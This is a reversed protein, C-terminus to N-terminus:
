VHRGIMGMLKMYLAKPTTGNYREPSLMKEKYRSGDKEGQV